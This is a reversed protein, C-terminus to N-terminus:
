VVIKSFIIITPKRTIMEETIADVTDDDDEDDKFRVVDEIGGCRDHVPLATTGLLRRAHPKNRQSKTPLRIFSIGNPRMHITHQELCVFLCVILFYAIRESNKM